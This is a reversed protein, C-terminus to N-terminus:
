ITTDRARREDPPLDRRLYELCMQVAKHRFQRFTISAPSERSFLREVELDFAKRRQEAAPQLPEANDASAAYLEALHRKEADSIM